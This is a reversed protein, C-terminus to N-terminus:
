SRLCFCCISESSITDKIFSWCRYCCIYKNIFFVVVLFSLHALLLDVSPLYFFLEKLNLYIALLTEKFFCHRISNVCLAKACDKQTLNGLVWAYFVEAFNSKYAACAIIRADRSRRGM